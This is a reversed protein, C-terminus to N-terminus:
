YKTSIYWIESVYCKAPSSIKAPQASKPPSPNTASTQGTTSPASPSFLLEMFLPPTPKCGVLMHPRASYPRSAIRLPLPPPPFRTFRISSATLPPLPSSSTLLSPTPQLIHEVTTHYPIPTSPYAGYVLQQCSGQRRCSGSSSAFAFSPPPLPPPPTPIRTSADRCKVIMAWVRPFCYVQGIRVISQTWTKSLTWGIWMSSRDMLAGDNNMMWGHWIHMTWGSHNKYIYLQTHYKPQSQSYHMESKWMKETSWSIWHISDEIGSGRLTLNTQMEYRMATNPQCLLLTLPSMCCSHPPCNISSVYTESSIIHQVRDSQFLHPRQQRPCSNKDGVEDISVDTIANPKIHISGAIIHCNTTEPM